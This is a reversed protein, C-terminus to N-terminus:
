RLFPLFLSISFRITYLIILSSLSSTVGGTVVSYSPVMLHLHMRTYQVINHSTDFLPICENEEGMWMFFITIPFINIFASVKLFFPSFPM